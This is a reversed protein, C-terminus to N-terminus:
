IDLEEVELANSHIFERRPEVKDGMLINFIEDAEVVDEIKVQYLTRKEPDMTTEWLQGPNMEGLGKYRQVTLGRKGRGILDQLLDQWNNYVRGEGDEVKFTAGSFSQLDQFISILRKLEPSTFMEWDVHFSQGGNETESVTFEYYGRGNDPMQVDSVEFNEQHLTEFVDDMFSKDKLQIRDSIGCSLLCEIFRPSYGKKALKEVNEYYKLLSNVLSALKKGSLVQEGVLLTEKQSIRNLLYQNYSEEDKMYLEKKGDLLRYLPPQAVYLHGKEILDPMQRFFFTLLLTRIHAGDVDADTMIIVKHYRLRNIDYEKEGIGTGLAAIM